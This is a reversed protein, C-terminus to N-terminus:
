GTVPTVPRKAAVVVTCARARASELGTASVLAVNCKRGSATRRATFRITKSVSQGAGVTGIDWLVNTGQLRGGSPVAVLAFAKPPQDRLVVGTADTGGTNSVTIRYAVRGGALARAPGTKAVTLTPGAAPRFAEVTAPTVPVCIGGAVTVPTATASVPGELTSKLGEPLEGLVATATNTVGTGCLAADSAVAKTATWTRTGGPALASTDAPPTLTAGEDTVVISSFPVPYPSPNTVTVDYSVTGGPTVSAQPTSKTISVSVPCISSTFATATQPEVVADEAVAAITDPKGLTVGATNEVQSGCAQDAPVQRTAKWTRSAGPALPSTNDPDTLQAGPDSVVIQDFPVTFDGTNTVIVDYTAVQGPELPGNTATKGISVKLPCIVQTFITSSNNKTDPETFGETVKLGVTATNEVQTNCIEETKATTQTATWIATEGAALVKPAPDPPTLSGSDAKPDTVEVSAFPIDYKGKNTVVVSYKIVGGPLIQADGTKEVTLDIPCIISTYATATQGNVAESPATPAPQDDKLSVDATNEVKSGCAQDAPVQRTAKWTRSGGPALATKDAPATLNAGPDSVVIQDFPVTFDGTNTVIVDYTALQGPELPGNTANKAISVKLPCIVQTFITSSNNKTDTEVYGPTSKLGVTATNKVETGCLAESKEVTRTATWTASEGPLLFDPQPKPDKYTLSGPDADADAVDISGFPVPYSGKNTVQVGYQIVGGPLVETDGKKTILLDVPCTITTTWTSTNDDTDKEVYGPNDGLKVMATNSVKAACDKTEPQQSGKWTLSEGPMLFPPPGVPPTLQADPDSVVIDGYPVPYLGDNKVVIDYSVPDGPAVTSPGTKKITLDVPCVILTKWTSENNTLDKEAYGPLNVLEVTATNAFESGCKVSEATRTAKWVLSKGPGLPQATPPVVTAGVDTVKISAFPIDVAGNNTVTLDYNITGNPAVTADGKKVIALDAPCIAEAIKRLTAALAAPDSATTWDTGETPGSVAKLNDVGLNGGVGVAMITQQLGGAAKDPNKALNASAIGFHVDDISTSGGSDSDGRRVTPNGDTVFVVVDVNAAAADILAEDWNTSGSGSTNNPYIQDVRGSAATKGAPTSLDYTTNGPSSTSAFSSIKLSTPTGALTDIFTKAAKNYDDNFGSTSGSTDLLLLVRIGTGCTTPLGPNELANVFRRTEGDIEVQRTGKNTQRFGVYPKSSGGWNLTAIPDWGPPSTKERVWYDTEDQLGTLSTQGNADTAPFPTASAFNSTKSAEMVAGQLGLAYGTLSNDVTSRYGGKSTQLTAASATGAAGAAGVALVAAVATARRSIGRRKIM